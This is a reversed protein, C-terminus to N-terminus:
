WYGNERRREDFRNMMDQEYDGACDDLVEAIAASQSGTQARARDSMNFLLVMTDNDDGSYSLRDRYVLFDFPEALVKVGIERVLQLNGADVAGILLAHAHHCMGELGMSHSMADLM